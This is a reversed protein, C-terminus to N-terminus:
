LYSIHVDFDETVTAQKRQPRALSKDAGKYTPVKRPISYTSTNPLSILFTFVCPPPSTVTVYATQAVVSQKLSWWKRLCSATHILLFLSINCLFGRGGDECDAETDRLHSDAPEELIGTFIKWVVPSFKFEHMLHKLKQEM